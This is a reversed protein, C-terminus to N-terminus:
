SSNLNIKIHHYLSLKPGLSALLFYPTGQNQTLPKLGEM